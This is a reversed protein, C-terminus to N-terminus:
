GEIFDLTQFKKSDVNLGGLKELLLRAKPGAITIQAYEETLNQIFVKKDWWETQHWEEM